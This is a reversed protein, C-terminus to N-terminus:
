EPQPPNEELGLRKALWATTSAQALITVVIAMFVVAALKDAGPIGTAVIMGSLAAPIVGTERVWCMFVLEQWSWRVRVDPLVSAYVALPRAVFVLVLVVALAPWLYEGLLAFNVQSGLLIFIFMRMLVSAHDAVYGMERESEAMSLGLHRANGWVIGATFTAMLGSVHLLEAFLYSGIAAVPMMLTAHDRFLGWKLHATLWALLGSVVLGIALGGAATRLFDLTISGFALEGAGTLVALLSLALISGVADNFASESEVTERLRTRVRVQRFVPIITAPDTSSIVAGILLATTWDLGFVIKVAYGAVATTVIVGVISLSTITLWVEKLGHWRINRGGDFLILASGVSLILQNTLSGSTETIWHVGQGLLMGAAIFVVVDPLRLWAALRGSVIGATLVLVLLILVHHVTDRTLDEM